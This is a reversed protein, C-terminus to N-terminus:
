LRGRKGWDLHSRDDEVLSAGDGVAARADGGEGYEDLLGADAEGADEGDNAGRLATGLVREGLGHDLEGLLRQAHGLEAPPHPVELRHGATPEPDVHAPQVLQHPPGLGLGLLELVKDVHLAGHRM